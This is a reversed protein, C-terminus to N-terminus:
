HQADKAIEEPGSREVAIYEVAAIDRVEAGTYSVNGTRAVAKGGELSLFHQHIPFSDVVHPEGESAHSPLLRLNEANAVIGLNWETALRYAHDFVQSADLGM